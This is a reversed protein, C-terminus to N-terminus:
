TYEHIMTTANEQYEQYNIELQFQQVQKKYRYNFVFLYKIM